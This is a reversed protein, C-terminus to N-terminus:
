GYMDDHCCVCMDGCADDPSFLGDCRSCTSADDYCDECIHEGEQTTRFNEDLAKNCWDCRKIKENNM